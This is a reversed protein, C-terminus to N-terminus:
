ENLDVFDVVKYDASGWCQGWEMSNWNNEMTREIEECMADVKAEEEDTITCVEHCLGMAVIFHERDVGDPFKFFKVQGGSNSVWIDADQYKAAEGASLLCM